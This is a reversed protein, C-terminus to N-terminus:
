ASSPMRSGRQDRPSPSTYLLCACPIKAPDIKYQSSKSAQGASYYHDRNGPGQYTAHSIYGVTSREVSPKDVAKKIPTLSDTKVYIATLQKSDQKKEVKKANEINPKKVASLAADSKLLKSAEEKSSVIM